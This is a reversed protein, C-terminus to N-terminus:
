VPFTEGPPSPKHPCLIDVMEGRYFVIVHEDTTSDSLRVKKKRSM